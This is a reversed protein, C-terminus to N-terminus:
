MALFSLWNQVTEMDRRAETASLGYADALSGPINPANLDSLRMVSSAFPTALLCTSIWARVTDKALGPPILLAQIDRLAARQEDFFAIEKEQGRYALELNRPDRTAPRWVDLQPHAGSIAHKIRSGAKFLAEWRAFEVNNIERSDRMVKREFERADFDNGARCLIELNPQLTWGMASATLNASGVFVVDDIRYYKAHLTPHLRFSGGREVVLTRCTSDSAGVVLDDPRWRTICILSSASEASSIVTRLADEKIYPAAIVLNRASSCVELVMSGPRAPM